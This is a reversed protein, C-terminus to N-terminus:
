LEYVVPVGCVQERQATLPRGAEGVDADERDAVGCVELLHAGNTTNQAKGCHRDCRGHRVM